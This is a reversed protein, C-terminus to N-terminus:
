DKLFKSLNLYLFKSLFYAGIGLLVLVPILFESAKLYKLASDTLIGSYYGLGVFLVSGLINMITSVIFFKLFDMKMFGFLLIGPVPLPPVHKVVLITKISHKKINEEIWLMRRESLGFYSVFKEIKKGRLCRGFLFLLTDPIIGSFVSIIWINFYGLSSAFAAFYSIVPGEICKLIFLFTYAFFLGQASILDLIDALNGVVM